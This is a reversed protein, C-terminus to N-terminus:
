GSVQPKAKQAKRMERVEEATLTIRLVDGERALKDAPLEVPTTGFGLFGGTRVVIGQVKGDAGAITTDIAGVREGDSTFVVQGILAQPDALLEANAAEVVPLTETPTAASTPAPETAPTAPTAAQSDTTPAGPAPGAAPSETVPQSQYQALVPGAAPVAILLVLAAIGARTDRASLGKACKLPTVM